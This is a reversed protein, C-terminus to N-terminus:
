VLKLQADIAKDITLIQRAEESWVPRDYALRAPMVTYCEIEEGDLVVVPTAWDSALYLYSDSVINGNLYITGATWSMDESLGAVAESPQRDRILQAAKIWDFVKRDETNQSSLAQIYLTEVAPNSMTILGKVVLLGM